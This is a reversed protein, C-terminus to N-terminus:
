TGAGQRSSRWPTASFVRLLLLSAVLAWFLYSGDQTLFASDVQGQVLAALFATGVGIAMWRLLGADKVRGIHQVIRAFLWYFMAIIAFYALLGFIGISVAINLIDNHPQLGPEDKVGTPFHTGPITTIWYHKLHPAYCVTNLSYHCSWNNLGVGFLPYDKFMHWAAQWLYLRKQTTSVNNVNVHHAFVFNTIKTHFVLAVAVVVVAFVAASVLLAKRNPLSLAALFLVAVAMAVWTGLSQLLFLILLAFLCFVLALIRLWRARAEGIVRGTGVIVFAMAFPLTYDFLIGVDNASGYVSAPRVLGDVDPVLTSRFFLYQALTLLGIIGVAALFATFLRILDTRARFCYLLLLLYLLPEIVFERLGRLAVHGDYAGLISVAAVVAYVVIPISFPGVRDWLERWSLWYRWTAQWLILQVGAVGVCVLLTIEALSFNAHDYVTKQLLYYPVTLPLLALALPLRSWCLVIFILLFPLSVLPNLHALFGTYALNPNGVVYYLAMALIMGLGILFDRAFGSLGVARKGPPASAQEPPTAESPANAVSEQDALTADSTTHEPSNMTM